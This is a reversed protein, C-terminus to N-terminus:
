AGRERGAGTHESHVLHAMCVAQFFCGVKTFSPNPTEEVHRDAAGQRSPGCRVERGGSCRSPSNKGETVGPWPSAEQQDGKM